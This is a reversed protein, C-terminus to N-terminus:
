APNTLALTTPELVTDALMYHTGCVVASAQHLLRFSASAKLPVRAAAEKRLKHLGCM